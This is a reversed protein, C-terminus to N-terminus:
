GIRRGMDFSSLSRAFTLRAAQSTTIRWDALASENFWVLADIEPRSHLWTFLDRIWGAKDGGAEVCGTEAIMIPKDPALSHVVTASHAFIREASTWGGWPLASGGNYGSLGIWDVVDAGPWTAALPSSTGRAVNPGWVWRANNAGAQRFIGVLHRWAAVYDAATTANMGVSWPYWNGNM